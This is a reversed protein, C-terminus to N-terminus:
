PPITGSIRQLPKYWRYEYGVPATWPLIGVGTRLLPTLFSSNISTVAILLVCFVSLGALIHKSNKM